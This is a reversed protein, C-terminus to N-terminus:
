IIFQWNTSSTSKLQRVIGSKSVLSLYITEPASLLNCLWNLRSFVVSVQMVFLFKLNAILLNKIFVLPLLIFPLLISIRPHGLMSWTKTLEKKAIKIRIIDNEM